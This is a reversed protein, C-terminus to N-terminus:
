TNQGNKIATPDWFVRPSPQKLNCSTGPSGKGLKLFKNEKTLKLDGWRGRCNKEKGKLEQEEQTPKEYTKKLWQVLMGEIKGTKGEV